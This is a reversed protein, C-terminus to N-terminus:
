RKVRRRTRRTTPAARVPERFGDITADVIPGLLEVLPPSRRSSSFYLTAGLYATVLARALLDADRGRGLEGATVAARADAVMDSLVLGFLAEGDDSVSASELVAESVARCLERSHSAQEALTMVSTRLAELPGAGGALAAARAARATRTQRDLLELIVVDKTAFHVFFTGKAVGARKAIADVSTDHYGRAAFLEAAAAFLRARTDDARLQRTSRRVAM